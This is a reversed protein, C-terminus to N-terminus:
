AELTAFYAEAAALAQGWTAGPDIFNGRDQIEQFKAFVKCAKYDLNIGHAALAPGMGRASIGTGCNASDLEAVVDLPAGLHVLAQGVGCSPQGGWAYVCSAGAPSRYVFEPGKVQVVHRLAEIANTATINGSLTM